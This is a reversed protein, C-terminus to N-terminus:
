KRKRGANTSFTTKGAGKPLTFTHNEQLAASDKQAQKSDGKKFTLNGEWAMLAMSEAQQAATMKRM